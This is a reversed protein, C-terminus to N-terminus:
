PGSDYLIRGWFYMNGPPIIRPIPNDPEATIFPRYAEICVQTCYYRDPSNVGALGTFNYGQGIWSRAREVAEPASGETSWMPRIVLVRQSKAVLDVLPTTHIGVGEAEIIVDQEADYISAHSLPMRTVSAVLNDPGHVGRTVLWDGHRLVGRLVAAYEQPSLTASPPIIPKVACGALVGLVLCLAAARAIPSRLPITQNM